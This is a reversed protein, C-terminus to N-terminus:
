RGLAAPTQTQSGPVEALSGLWPMASRCWFQGKPALQAREVITGVRVNYAPPDFEAAAYIRTGCTGCFAQARRSGSEATKVYIKPVGKMRFAEKPVPVFASFATGTLVQCDTCHCVSVKAPDIEAEFALAGCHCGGQVKM